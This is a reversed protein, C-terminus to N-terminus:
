WATRMDTRTYSPKYVASVILITDDGDTRKIINSANRSPALSYEVPKGDIARFQFKGKGRLKLSTKAFELIKKEPLIEPVEMIGLDAVSGSELQLKSVVKPDIEFEVQINETYRVTGQRWLALTTIHEVSGPLGLVEIAFGDKDERLECKTTSAQGTVKDIVLAGNNDTIYRMADTMMKTNRHNFCSVIWKIPKPISM